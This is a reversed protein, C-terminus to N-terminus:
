PSPAKAQKDPRPKKQPALERFLGLHPLVGDRQKRPRPGRPQDVDANAAATVDLSQLPSFAPFPAGEPWHLFVPMAAPLGDPPSSPEQRVQLRPNPAVPKYIVLRETPACQVKSLDEAVREEVRASASFTEHYRRIREEVEKMSIPHVGSSSTMWCFTLRHPPPTGLHHIRRGLHQVVVDGLLAKYARHRMVPNTPPPLDAQELLGMLQDKAQNVPDVLPAPDTNLAIIGPLRRAVGVNRQGDTRHFDAFAEQALRIAEPGTVAQVTIATPKYGLEHDTDRNITYVEIHRVHAPWAANFADVAAYLQDRAARIETTSPPM